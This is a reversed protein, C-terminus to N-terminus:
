FMKETELEPQSRRRRECRREFPYFAAFIRIIIILKVWLHLLSNNSGDVGLINTGKM